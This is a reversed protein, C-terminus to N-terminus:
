KIGQPFKFVNFPDYKKKVARLKSVHLGYYAEQYDRLNNYPFNVYSGKTIEKLYEFREQVWQTNIKAYLSDEWTSQVVIIYRANRYFFATSDRSVDAVRGGLAYVRLEVSVSGKPRKNILRIISGVEERSYERHVFRGPSKFKEFPPYSEEVKQIAELFTLYQLNASAGQINLLPRLLDEAEGPKGYFIGRAYVGRGRDQSNYIYGNMTIRSDLGILWKQWKDLFESQREESSNPYSIEIFTVKDVKEPLKFTMAVVVGFNGGGAGRCAWFLDSNCSENATIINGKYDILQLEVLSDCGLGFIRSSYGWGGGLTYGSVGVTPCTGGPFPYGRSGAFQYLGQNQVGGQVYLLKKSEDLRINNMRSIDIVLVGNGISYGEYNHGGSRIRIELKDRRACAIANIVDKNDYCYVIVTPFKQIARNWEQRAAEYEPSQPTIVEGTLRCFCEKEM